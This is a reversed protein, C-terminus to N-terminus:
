NQLCFEAAADAASAADVTYCDAKILDCYGQTIPAGGIMIKFQERVGREVAADIINKMEGMTTTLLASCCIIDVDNEIAADIFTEAPVNVGLDVVSLGKGELMMKVMNKGIDHLDGKVTGIVAKGKAKVGAATLYPQLISIGGNLARAAILVEPVFVENNRFKEGIVSMGALLGSELIENPAIGEEIAQTVLEKVKPLRGQQLFTSIENLLSM